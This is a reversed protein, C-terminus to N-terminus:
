NRGGRPVYAGDEFSAFVAEVLPHAIPARESDAELNREAVYTTHQAGDVLVHYWPRDKPPRTIAMAEYWDETGQFTADVDFVAGRYDFRRHHVLQGVSFLARAREPGTPQDTM